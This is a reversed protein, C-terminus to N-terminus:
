SRRTEKHISITCGLILLNLLHLELRNIVSWQLAIVFDEWRTRAWDELGEGNHLMTNALEVFKYLAPITRDSLSPDNEMMQIAGFLFPYRTNFKNSPTNLYPVSCGEGFIDRNAPTTPKLVLGDMPRKIIWSMIWSTKSRPNSQLMMSLSAMPFWDTRYLALSTDVDNIYNCLSM